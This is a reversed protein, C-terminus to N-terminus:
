NRKPAIIACFNRDGIATVRMMPFNNEVFTDFNITTLGMSSALDCADTVFAPDVGAIEPVLGTNNSTSKAQSWAICSDAVKKVRDTVDRLPVSYPDGKSPSRTFLLEGDDAKHAFFTDGVLVKVLVDSEPKYVKESDLCDAWDCKNKIIAIHYTDTAIIRGDYLWFTSMVNAKKAGSTFEQLAKVTRGTLKAM